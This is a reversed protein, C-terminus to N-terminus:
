PRLKGDSELRVRFIGSERAIELAQRRELEPVFRQQFSMGCALFKDLAVLIRKDDCAIEQKACDQRPPFVIRARFSELRIRRILPAYGKAYAGELHCRLALFGALCRLAM